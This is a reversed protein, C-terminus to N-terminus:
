TCLIRLNRVNGLLGQVSCSTRELSFESTKTMQDSKPRSSFNEGGVDYLHKNRLFQSMELVNKGMKKKKKFLSNRGSLTIKIMLRKFPIQM